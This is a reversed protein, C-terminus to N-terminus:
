CAPVLKASGSGQWSGGAQHVALLAHPTLFRQYCCQMSGPWMQQAGLDEKNRHRHLTGPTVPEPTPVNPGEGWLGPLHSGWGQSAVKLSLLVSSPAKLCPSLLHLLCSMHFGCPKKLSPHGGRVVTCRYPTMPSPCFTGCPCLQHALPPALPVTPGGHRSKGVGARHAWVETQPWRPLHPPERLVRILPKQELASPQPRRFLEWGCWRAGLPSSLRGRPLYPLGARAANSTTLPPAHGRRGQAATDPTGWAGALM